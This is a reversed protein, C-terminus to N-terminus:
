LGDKRPSRKAKAAARVAADEAAQRKAIDNAVAIPDTRKAPPKPAVARLVNMSAKAM